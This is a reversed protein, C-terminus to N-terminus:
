GGLDILSTTSGALKKMAASSGTALVQGHAIALAERVSFDNDVTLIKGNFLVTDASQASAADISWGFSLAGGMGLGGVRRISSSNFASMNGGTRGQDDAAHEQKPPLHAM